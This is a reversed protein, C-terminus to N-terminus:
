LIVFDFYEATMHKVIMMKSEYKSKFQYLSYTPQGKEYAGGIDLVFSGNETLKQFVIKGFKCLWDVYQEQNENGYVKKRQLAFPPSTIVLNISNDPLDQLLEISDGCICQGKKTKYGIITDM